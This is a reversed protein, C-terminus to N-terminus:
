RRDTITAPRTSLSYKPSHHAQLPLEESRKSSPALDETKIVNWTPAWEHAFVTLPRLGTKRGARKVKTWKPPGKPGKNHESRGEQFFLPMKGKPSLGHVAAEEAGVGGVGRTKEEKWWSKASPQPSSVNKKREQWNIASSRLSRGTQIHPPKLSNYMGIYFTCM